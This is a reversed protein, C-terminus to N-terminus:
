EQGAQPGPADGAARTQGADDMDPERIGEPLPPDAQLVTPGERFWRVAPVYSGDLIITTKDKLGERLTELYRLFTALEPNQAFKRYEEAAARDGQSRIEAARLQAFAVIQQSASRAREVIATAQAQGRGRYDQAFKERENKQVEIVAESVKEPLGWVKMGVLRVDVGYTEEVERGVADLVEREVEELRRQEPDTNILESMDHRGIVAKKKDTLVDRLTREAEDITEIASYFTAPDEIRWACYMSVIIQQKDNTETQSYVDEFTMTRADYRIVQEIPWPWKPHLGAHDQGSLVRTVRGFTKVLVIDRFEDVQFLVTRSLLVLAVLIGLVIIIVQRRM